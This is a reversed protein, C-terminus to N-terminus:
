YSPFWGTRINASVPRGARELHKGDFIPLEGNKHFFKMLASYDDIKSVPLSRVVKAGRVLPLQYPGGVRETQYGLFSFRGLVSATDGVVPFPILDGIIGDLYAASRWLGAKYMLNRLAVTSELEPVHQRSTPLMSRVKVVSVDEGNFYEKGCSERFKGNWFSKHSNVKAGFLSLWEIVSQTYEVPVIIDDGYVRVFRSLSTIDKRRLPRKLEHEIACFIIALFVMAEFPFCLASGMSAYKSLPIVGYGPVDAKRSRCADVGALLNPHHRLLIRVHRWSVRDSAESLDLTALRGSKSGALALRQNPTQDTFGILRHLLKNEQVGTYIAGRIAQQVYQMHTPEVAIIRPTKLTKPVTIVKVPMEADPELLTVDDMRDLFSWSSILNEWHPFVEELRRTWLKNTWKQNGLLRDATVGPGHRAVLEGEYISHDVDSFLQGFLLSGMRSFASEYDHLDSDVSGGPGNALERECLVYAEIAREVRESSCPVNIKACLRCIQRIAYVADVQRGVDFQERLGGGLSFPYLTDLEGVVQNGNGERSPAPGINADSYNLLRGTGSDFVLGLFGGLFRPLGRQFAFSRFLTHDVYGQELGREFDSAFNALTITLFSLGEHEVRRRVTKIDAATSVCCLTGVDTLVREVLAILSKM